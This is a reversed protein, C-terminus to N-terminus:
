TRESQVTRELLEGRLYREVGHVRSRAARVQRDIHAAVVQAVSLVVLMHAALFLKCPCRERFRRKDRRGDQRGAAFVYALRMPCCAALKLLENSASSHDSSTTYPSM